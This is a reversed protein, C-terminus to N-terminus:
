HYMDACYGVKMYRDRLAVPAAACAYVFAIQM